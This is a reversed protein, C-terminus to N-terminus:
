SEPFKEVVVKVSGDRNVTTTTRQVLRGDKRRDSEDQKRRQPRETSLWRPDSSNQIAINTRLRTKKETDPTDETDQAEEPQPDQTQEQISPVQRKKHTVYPTEPLKSSQPKTGTTKENDLDEHPSGLLTDVSPWENEMRRVKPPNVKKTSNQGM